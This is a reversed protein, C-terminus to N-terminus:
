SNSQNSLRYPTDFPHIPLHLPPPQGWKRKEREGATFIYLIFVCSSSEPATPLNSFELKLNFFSFFFQITQIHLFPQYLVLSLPSPVSSVANLSASERQIEIEKRQEVLLPWREQQVVKERERKRIRRTKIGVFSKLVYVVSLSLIQLSLRLTHQGKM